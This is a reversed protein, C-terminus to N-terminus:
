IIRSLAEAALLNDALALPQQKSNIADEIARGLGCSDTLTIYRTAGHVIAGPGLACVLALMLGACFVKLKM